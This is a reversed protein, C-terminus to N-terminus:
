RAGVWPAIHADRVRSARRQKADMTQAKDMFGSMINLMASAVTRGTEGKLVPGALFSALFYSLSLTFLPPFFSPITVAVTYRIRADVVNTYLVRTNDSLGEIEFDNVGNLAAVPGYTTGVFDDADEAGQVAFVALANSPLAYAYRWQTNPDEDLLALTTRRLAFNWPYMELLADRAIPYFLAAQEAQASGEPPDLNVITADDGLHSLALNAIAVATTVPIV